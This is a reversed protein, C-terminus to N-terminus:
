RSPEPKGRLGWLVLAFSIIGTPAAPYTVLQILMEQTDSGRAGAAAIPFTSGGAGLLAGIVFGAMTAFASYIFFWFAVQSAVPTLKLKPWVLGLALFMVGTFGSLTHVSRGLNPAAFYPVAFGQFSTLLFLAVGIQILRHGQVVPAPANM